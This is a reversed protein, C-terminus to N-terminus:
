VVSKRDGEVAKVSKTEIKPLDTKPEIAKEQPSITELVTPPGAIAQGTEAQSVSGESAKGQKETVEDANM